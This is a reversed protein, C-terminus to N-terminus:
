RAAGGGNKWHTRPYFRRGFLPRRRCRLADAWKWSRLNLETLMEGYTLRKAETAQVLPGYLLQLAVGSLAGTSELKGTAVEPVRSVEHLAEKLRAYYALSSTLDSQM